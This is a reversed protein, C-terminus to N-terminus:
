WERVVLEREGALGELRQEAVERVTLDAPM